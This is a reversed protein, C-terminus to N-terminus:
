VGSMNIGGALGNGSRGSQAIQSSAGTPSSISLNKRVPLLKERNVGRLALPELPLVALVMPGMLAFTMDLLVFAMSDEIGVKGRAVITGIIFIRTMASVLMTDAGTPTSDSSIKGTILTESIGRRGSRSM